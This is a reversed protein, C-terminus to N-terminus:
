LAGPGESEPALASVARGIVAAVVALLPGVVLGGVRAKMAQAMPVITGEPVNLADWHRFYSAEINMAYSLWTATFILIQGFLGISYGVLLTGPWSFRGVRRSLAGFYFCSILTAGLISFMANGRPAYPVGKMGLMFRGVAYITILLLPLRIFRLVRAIM